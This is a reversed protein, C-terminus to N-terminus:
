INSNRKWENSNYISAYQSPTRAYSLGQDRDQETLKVDPAKLEVMALPLGYRSLLLDNRGSVTKRSFDKDKTIITHGLQIQFNGEFSMEESKFGLETFFLALSFRVDEESEPSFPFQIDKIGM